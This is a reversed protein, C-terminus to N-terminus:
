LHIHPSWPVCCTAPFSQWVDVSLHYSAVAGHFLCVSNCEHLDSIQWLSVGGDVFLCVFLYLFFFFAQDLTQQM